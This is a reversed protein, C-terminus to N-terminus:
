RSIGFRVLLWVDILVVPVVFLPWLHTVTFFGILCLAWLLGLISAEKAYIEGDIVGWVVLIALLIFPLIM